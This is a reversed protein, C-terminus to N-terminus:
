IEMIRDIDEAAQALAKQVEGSDYAELLAKVWREAIIRYKETPTVLVRGDTEALRRSVEYFDGWGAAAEKFSEDEWVSTRTPNMNGEFAARLLFERGSAWKMFRWAAEKERSRENMVLSWTWLNPMAIGKSNVPPVAYGIHGAMASAGRKEYYGVYHDSDVILGYKGACFDMALEYWRQTPWEAPGAAKLANLFKEAAEVAEPSAIACHGDAGFDVAGMSWYQTAFGTYMTHWATTGRQAFGSVGGLKAIKEATEFYADWDKPIELDLKEFVDKNYAMNYSECNVPISLLPGEGLPEGFKGTWRNARILNPIFDAFDEKEEKTSIYADLHEVFGKNVHEWLLIPGSMYVDVGGEEALYGQIQNSFYEDSEIIRLRVEDGSQAEYEKIHKVVSDVFADTDPAFFTIKSMSLGGKSLCTEQYRTQNYRISAGTVNM